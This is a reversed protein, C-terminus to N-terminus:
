TWVCHNRHRSRRWADALVNGLHLLDKSSIFLLFAHFVLYIVAFLATRMCVRVLSVACNSTAMINKAAEVSATLRLPHSREPVSM